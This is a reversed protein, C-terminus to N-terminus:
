MWREKKLCLDCAIERFFEVGEGQLNLQLFTGLHHKDLVVGTFIFTIHISFQCPDMVNFVFLDHHKQRSAVLLVCKPFFAPLILFVGEIFLALLQFFLDNAGVLLIGYLQGPCDGHM